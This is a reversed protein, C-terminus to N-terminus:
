YGAESPQVFAGFALFYVIMTFLTAGGSFMAFVVFPLRPPLLRQSSAKAVLLPRSGGGVFGSRSDSCGLSSSPLLSSRDQNSPKNISRSKGGGVRYYSASIVFTALFMGLEWQTSEIYSIALSAGHLFGLAAIIGVPSDCNEEECEVVWFAFLCYLATYLIIHGLVEDLLYILPHGAGHQIEVMMTNISNAAWHVAVGYVHAILLALSGGRIKFGGGSTVRKHMMLLLYFVIPDLLMIELFDPLRLKGVLTTKFYEGIIVIIIPICVYLSLIRPWLLADFGDKPQDGKGGTHTNNVKPEVGMYFAKQSLLTFSELSLTRLVRVPAAEAAFRNYTERAWDGKNSHNEESFINYRKTLGNRPSEENKPSSTKFFNGKM